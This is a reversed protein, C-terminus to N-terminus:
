PRALERPPYGKCKLKPLRFALANWLRQPIVDMAAGNMAHYCLVVRSVCTQAPSAAEELLLAPFKMM